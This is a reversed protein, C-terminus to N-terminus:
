LEADAYMESNDVNDEVDGDTALTSSPSSFPPITGTTSWDQFMQGSAHANNFNTLLECAAYRTAMNMVNDLRSRYCSMDQMIHDIAITTYLNLAQTTALVNNATELTQMNTPTDHAVRMVDYNMRSLLIDLRQNLASAMRTFQGALEATSYDNPSSRSNNGNRRGGTSAYTAM